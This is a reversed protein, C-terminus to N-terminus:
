NQMNENEIDKITQALNEDLAKLVEEKYEYPITTLKTIAVVNRVFDSRNQRIRILKTEMEKM